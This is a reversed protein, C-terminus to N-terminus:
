HKVNLVIKGVSKGSHMLTLAEVARGFDFEHGVYPPELQLNHLSDFIQGLREEHEYIHILNFGLLAKNDTMLKLPDIKPRWIYKWGLGLWQFANWIPHLNSNPALSASGYLVLRGEKKLLNYNPLFWDGMVSDLVIDFLEEKESTIQLLAKKARAEFNKSPDRLIFSFNSSEGYKENLLDLKFSAGVTGVVKASKKNLISLASLGCGGAASHVLVTQNPKLRGLEELAYFATLGQVVYACAQQDTWGDPTKRVYSSKLNIYTAYGGFYTVGYVRKELWEEKRLGEGVYEVVGSFELGPTHARLHQLIFGSYKIRLFGPPPPPLGDEVIRLNDLTGTKDVTWIKRLQFSM